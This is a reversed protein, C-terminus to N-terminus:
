QLLTCGNAKKQFFVFFFGFLLLQLDADTLTNQERHTPSVQTEESLDGPVQHLAFQPHGLLVHVHEGHVGRDGHLSDLDDQQIGVLSDDRASSPTHTRRMRDWDFWHGGGVGATWAGGHQEEEQRVSLGDQM